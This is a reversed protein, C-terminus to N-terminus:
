DFVVTVAGLNDTVDVTITKDCAADDQEPVTVKGLNSSAKLIVKWSSPIHLVVAGLNDYVAIRGGGEYAETNTIYAVVKGLNDNIKADALDADDFYLTTSVAKSLHKRGPRDPLLAELGITMLLAALLVTWFPILKNDERGLAHAITPEFVIFMFALPFPIETFRLEVITDVLWALCVAGLLIRWVSLGYGLEVGIGNLILLVAAGILVIGWFVSTRISRKANTKM